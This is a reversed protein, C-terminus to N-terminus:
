RGLQHSLLRGEAFLQRFQMRALQVDRFAQRPRGSFRCRTNHRTITSARALLERRRQQWLRQRRALGADRELSRLVARYLLNRLFSSRRLQELRLWNQQRTGLRLHRDRLPQM